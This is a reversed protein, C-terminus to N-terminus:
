ARVKGLHLSSKFIEATVKWPGKSVKCKAGKKRSHTRVDM